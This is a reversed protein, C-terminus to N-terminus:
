RVLWMKRQSSLWHTPARRYGSQSCGGVTPHGLACLCLSNTRAAPDPLPLLACVCMLGTDCDVVLRKARVGGVIDAAGRPARAAAHVSSHTIARM